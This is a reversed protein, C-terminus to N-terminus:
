GAAGGEISSLKTAMLSLLLGEMEAMDPLCAAFDQWLLLLSMQCLRIQFCGVRLRGSLKSKPMILSGGGCRRAETIVVSAIGKKRRQATERLRNPIKAWRTPGVENFPAESSPM